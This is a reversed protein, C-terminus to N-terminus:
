SLKIVALLTLMPLNKNNTYEFNFITNHEMM